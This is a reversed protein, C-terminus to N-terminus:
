GSSSMPMTNSELWASRVACPRQLSGCIKNKILDLLCAFLFGYRCSMFRAFADGGKYIGPKHRTFMNFEWYGGLSCARVVAAAPGASARDLFYLVKLSLTHQQRNLLIHRLNTFYGERLHADKALGADKWVVRVESGPAFFWSFVM